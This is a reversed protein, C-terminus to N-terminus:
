TTLQGNNLNLNLELLPICSLATALRCLPKTNREETLKKFMGTTFSKTASLDKPNLLLPLPNLASTDRSRNPLSPVDDDEEQPIDRSFSQNRREYREPERLNERVPETHSERPMDPLPKDQGPYSPVPAQSHAPPVSPQLQQVVSAPVSNASLSAGAAGLQIYNSPVFGYDTSKQSRCSDM